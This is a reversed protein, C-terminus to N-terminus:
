MSVISQVYNVINRPGVVRVTIRYYVATSVSITSEGAAENNGSTSNTGPAVACFAGNRNGTGNCLRQIVFATTNGALDPAGPSATCVVGGAVVPLYCVGNGSVDAWLKEGLRYSANNGTSATYGMAPQDADLTGSTNQLELWATAAEVGRDASHTAAQQFALNGAIMNTTDMSRMLALGGLTMLLLVILAVMMVM